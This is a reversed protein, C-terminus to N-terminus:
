GSTSPSAPSASTRRSTSAERHEDVVDAPLEPGAAHPGLRARRALRARVAQRLEAPRPRAAYQRGALLPSSDPTLVEDILTLEGDIVGFEFKTDAIIIGRERAHEAAFAYLELTLERLQETLDRGSSRPLRARLTINEDHGTTPRRRRRSSRSPSSDRSRGPGDSRSAASRAREGPVGELGLRRPLRARRVRDAILEAERVLMSRGALEDAHQEVRAPLRRRRDLDPPEARDGTTREFWFASLGTLM